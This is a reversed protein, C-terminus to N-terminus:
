SSAQPADLKISSLRRDLKQSDAFNPPYQRSVLGELDRVLSSLESSGLIECGKIVDELDLWVLLDNAIAGDHGANRVASLYRHVDLVRQYAQPVADENLGLSGLTALYTKLGLRPTEVEGFNRGDGPLFIPFDAPKM